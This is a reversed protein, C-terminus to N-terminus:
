KKLTIAAGAMLSVVALATAIGVVDNAGTNPSTSTGDGTSASTSTSTSGSTTTDGNNEVPTYSLETDSVVLSMDERIKGAFANIESDWVLSSEYLSGNKVEYIYYDDDYAMVEINWTASVGNLYVQYFLIDSADPNAMLINKDFDYTVDFYISDEDYVRGYLYIDGNDDYADADAYGSSIDFKTVAGLELYGGDFQEITKTVVFLPVMEELDFTDNREFSGGYSDQKAKVQLASIQFNPTSVSTLTYNQRLEIVLYNDEFYVSSVLSSGKSYTRKSISFYDDDFEYSGLVSTLPNGDSDVFNNDDFLIRTGTSVYTAANIDYHTTIADWVVGDDDVSYYNTFPEDIGDGEGAFACTTLLGVAMIAAFLKNTKM